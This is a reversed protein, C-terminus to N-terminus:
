LKLKPRQLRNLFAAIYIVFNSIFKLIEIPLRVIQIIQEIFKWFNALERKANQVGTKLRVPILLIRKVGHLVQSGIESFSKSIQNFNILTTKISYFIQRLNFANPRNSLITHKITSTSRSVTRIVSQLKRIDLHYIMERLQDLYEFIIKIKPMALVRETVTEFFIPRMRKLEYWYVTTFVCVSWFLYVFLALRLQLSFYSLQAIQQEISGSNSKTSVLDEHGMTRTPDIQLSPFAETTPQNM